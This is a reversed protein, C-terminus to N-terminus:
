EKLVKDICMVAALILKRTPSDASVADSIDLVYNDATTFMEKGIGTWKKTVHALEVGHATFRFDWGTWKGTLQCVERGDVDHVAFAGGLTSLKFSFLKQRFGGIITDNEDHVQVSSAFITVGRTVRVVQSGDVDTVHVDFPTFRRYDTFRLLKTFLGLNPERCELVKEGSSLDYIDYNSAAKFLGVHEKVLLQNAHTWSM